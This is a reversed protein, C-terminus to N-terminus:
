RLTNFKHHFVDGVGGTRRKTQKVEITGVFEDRSEEKYNVGVTGSLAGLFGGITVRQVKIVRTRVYYDSSTEVETSSLFARKNTIIKM